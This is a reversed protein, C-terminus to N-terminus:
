SRLDPQSLSASRNGGLYAQTSEDEPYFAEIALESVTIDLQTGFVTTTSFLALETGSHVYRLPVVLAGPAAPVTGGPYASLEAHLDTLVADGTADAQRSLRDLLHARWQGLNAIRPAMGDPHLSLRLANVPPELLHAACGAALLGVADNAAVMEWHRDVVLAPYPMHATLVREIADHVAAMPTGGLAHEPYAPAFGGALLLTNRERLPIDLHDALHLLM